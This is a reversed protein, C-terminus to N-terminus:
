RGSAGWEFPPLPDSPLEYTDLVFGLHVLRYRATVASVLKPPIPWFKSIVVVRPRKTRLDDLMERVGQEAFEQDVRPDLHSTFFFRSAPMRGSYLYIQPEAGLNLLLDGPRTLGGLVTGLNMGAVYDDGYKQMSVIKPETGLYDVFDVGCWLFGLVLMGTLAQHHWSASAVTGSPGSEALRRSDNWALVGVLAAAPISPIFYHPHLSGLLFIQAASGAAWVMVLLRGPLDRSFNWIWVAGGAALMWVPATDGLRNAAITKLVPWVGDKFMGATAGAVVRTTHFLALAYDEFAGRFWFYASLAVWSAIGPVSLAAVSLLRRRVPEARQFCLVALLAALANLVINQKFISGVAFLCGMAWLRGTGRTKEWDLLWLLSLLLMPVLYIEINCGNAQLDRACYMVAYLLIGAARAAEGVKLASLVQWLLLVSAAGVFMAAIRMLRATLGFARDLAAYFCIMGPPKNDYGDRYLVGGRAVIKGLMAYLAEDGEVPEELAHALGVLVLIVAFILAVRSVGTRAATAAPVFPDTM